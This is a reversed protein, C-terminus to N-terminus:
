TKNQSPDQSEPSAECTSELPPVKKFPNTWGLGKWHCPITFCSWCIHNEFSKWSFKSNEFRTEGFKWGHVPIEVRNGAGGYFRLAKAAAAEHPQQQRSVWTLSPYTWRSVWPPTFPLSWSRSGRFKVHFRFISTESLFRRKWFDIKLNWTLNWPHLDAEWSVDSMWFHITAAVQKVQKMLVGKSRQQWGPLFWSRCMFLSGWHPNM